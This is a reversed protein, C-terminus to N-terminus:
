MHEAIKQIAFAQDSFKENTFIAECLGYSMGIEEDINKSTKEDKWSANKGSMVRPYSMANDGFAKDLMEFVERFKIGSKVSFESFNDSGFKQWM